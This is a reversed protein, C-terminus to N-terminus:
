INTSRCTYKTTSVGSPSRIEVNGGTKIHIDVFRQSDDIRLIHQKYGKTGESNFLASTTAWALEDAKGTSEIDGETIIPNAVAPVATILAPAVHDVADFFGRFNNPDTNCYNKLDSNYWSVVWWDRGTTGFGTVHAVSFWCCNCILASKCSTLGAM